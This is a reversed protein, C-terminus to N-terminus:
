FQWLQRDENFISQILEDFLFDVAGTLKFKPLPLFTSLM